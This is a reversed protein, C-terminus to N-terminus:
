NLSNSLIILLKNISEKLHNGYILLNGSSDLRATLDKMRNGESDTINWRIRFTIVKIQESDQILQNFFSLNQVDNTSLNLEKVLDGELYVKYLILRHLNIDYGEKLCHNKLNKWIKVLKKPKFDKPLFDVNSKLYKEVLYRIEGQGRSVYLLIDKQILNIDEPVWAQTEGPLQMNYQYKITYANDALNKNTTINASKINKKLGDIKQNVSELDGRVPKVEKLWISSFLSKLDIIENIRYIKYSPM